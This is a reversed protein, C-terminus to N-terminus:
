TTKLDNYRHMSGIELATLNEEEVDVDDRLYLAKHTMMLKRTGKLEERTWKLFPGSYRLLPVAWINIGKILNRSHLKTKLLKKTRRLYEKKFKKEKMGAQEITDVKGLYKYIEKERLTRIKGQNPLEIGEMMQRKGSKMILMACKEIDFEIGTEDSYIRVVQILTELEKENKAFHENPRQTKKRNLFNTDKLANGLYTVCLCWRSLLYYHHYCMKRSSGERSLKKKRSETAGELKGHYERYVKHNRRINPVNQSLRNDLM